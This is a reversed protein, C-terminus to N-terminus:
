CKIENLQMDHKKQEKKGFNESDEITEPLSQGRTEVSFM